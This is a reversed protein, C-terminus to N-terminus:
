PSNTLVEPGSKTILVTEEFMGSLSGDATRYTWKDADVELYADGAAYMIEIALTQGEYLRDKKNRRQAICPVEPEMHLERGIGHGCLQYVCSFGENVVVREMAASVDYVTNGIRAKNIAKVLSRKGIELFQEKEPTTTGVIFTTTTDLHYGDYILGVDITIVDGDEVVKETTPIGHCLEDNKMICTAWDYGPVTSFSPQAGKDAILRQAEAEIEAFTLGVRTFHVLEQKVEGLLKGGHRMATIRQEDASTIM